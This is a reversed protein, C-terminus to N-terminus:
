WIRSKLSLPNLSSAQQEDSSAQPKHSSAKGPGRGSSTKYLPSFFECGPLNVAGCNARPLSKRGAHIRRSVARFAGAKSVASMASVKLPPKTKNIRSYGMKFYFDLFINLQRRCFLEQSRRSFGIYKAPPQPQRLARIGWGRKPLPSTEWGRRLAPRLGAQLKDSTAQLKDSAAQPRTIKKNKKKINEM